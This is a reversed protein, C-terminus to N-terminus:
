RVAPVPPGNQEAASPGACSSVAKLSAPLRFEANAENLKLTARSALVVTGVVGVVGAAFLVAPSHKQAVLLQRGVKSTVVNKISQFNM